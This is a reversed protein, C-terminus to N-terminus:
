SNDKIFLERFIPKPEPLFYDVSVNYTCQISWFDSQDFVQPSMHMHTAGPPIFICRIIHMVIKNPQPRVISHPHASDARLPLLSSVRKEWILLSGLVLDYWLKTQSISLPLKYLVFQVSSFFLFIPVFHTSCVNVIFKTAHENEHWKITIINSFTIDAM